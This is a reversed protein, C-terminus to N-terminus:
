GIHNSFSLMITRGASLKGNFVTKNEDMIRWLFRGSTQLGTIM